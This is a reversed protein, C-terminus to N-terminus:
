LLGAVSGLLGGLLGGVVPLGSVVGTLTAALSKVTGLVNGLLGGVVPLGSLLGTLSLGLLGGSVAEIEVKNMEQIAM